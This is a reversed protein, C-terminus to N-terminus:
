INKPLKKASSHLIPWNDPFIHQPNALADRDLYSLFATISIERAGFSALYATKMQCDILRVGEQRLTLVLTSFAVKSSNACHSFMSEGFFVKGLQLGYLGGVLVGDRWSEVSHAIGLRHLNIYAEQMEKTIWTGDQGPRPTTACNAIVEPFAKDYTITFIGKKRVKELSKSIHLEKTFLVFRPNPAWWLLPEGASFWPFIGSLYANVLRTPSLDGGIALLGNADAATAPPFIPEPGLRYLTM